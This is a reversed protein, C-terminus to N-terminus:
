PWLLGVLKGIIGSKAGIKKGKYFIEGNAIRSSLITNQQTVDESRVLGTIRLEQNRGDITVLKTGEINAVGNPDVAVVRVSVVAILSGARRAQGTNDSQRNLGIGLSRFDEPAVPSDLSGKMTRNNRAVESSQESALASEDVVITLIDGLRLPRRDSTWSQRVDVAVVAPPTAASVTSDGVPAAGQAGLRMPVLAVLPLIVVRRIM